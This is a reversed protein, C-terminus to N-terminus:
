QYKALEGLAQDLAVKYQRDDIQFLLEGAKVSAGDSYHQKLLYGQVRPRVQANVFGETTGVWESYIPIDRAVVKVVVVETAPPSAPGEKGCGGSAVGVAITVVLACKTFQM